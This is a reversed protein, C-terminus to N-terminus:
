KLLIIDMIFSPFNSFWVSPLALSVEFYFILLLAVPIGVSAIVTYFFSQNNRVVEFLRALHKQDVVAKRRSRGGKSNHVDSKLTEKTKTQLKDSSKLHTIFFAPSLQTKSSPPVTHYGILVPIANDQKQSSARSDGHDQSGM